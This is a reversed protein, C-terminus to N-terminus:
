ISIVVKGTHKGEGFYQLAHPVAALSFPGDIVPFIKGEDFLANLYTLDKNPTLTLLNMYKGTYKSILGKAFFLLLLNVLSGGVTVYRGRPKLSPLYAFPSRNTKTDLILDYQQGNKTFDEKKYDIVQDFGMSLMMQLKDGTDVGTVEADHLKALQLGITGVGGGAGNILIKQEKKLQGLDLLGQTALTAAHPLAAAQEFSMSEPKLILSQEHICIYEAFTGFGYDSIDGYVADGVGFRSTNSGLAEVTGALEMGPIHNKPKMLGFMLRYLFPKGRVLSWDYDNIATARIKVLVENEAPTPQEVEQLKLIDPSGYKKFIIAKM